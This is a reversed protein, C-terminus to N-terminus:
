FVESHSLVKYLPDIGLQYAVGLLDDGLILCIVLFDLPPPFVGTKLGYVM